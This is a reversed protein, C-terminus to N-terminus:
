SRLTYVFSLRNDGDLQNLVDEHLGMTILHLVKELPTEAKAGTTPKHVVQYLVNNMIHLMVDCTFLASVPKYKSVWQPM